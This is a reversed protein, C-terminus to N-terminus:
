LRRLEGRSHLLIKSKQMYSKHVITGDRHDLSTGNPALRLPKHVIAGDRHDLSTGNPALRLPVANDGDMVVSPALAEFVALGAM